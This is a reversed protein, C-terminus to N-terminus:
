RTRRLRFTGNLGIIQLDGSLEDGRVVGDFVAAVNEQEFHAKPSNFAIKSLTQKFMGVSPMTMTGEVGGATTKFNVIVRAQSGERALAGEWQGDLSVQAAHVSAALFTCLVVAAVFSIVRTVILIGKKDFVSLVKCTSAYRGGDAALAM